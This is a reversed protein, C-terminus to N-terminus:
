EKRGFAEALEAELEARSQLLDYIADESLVGRKLEKPFEGRSDADHDAMWRGSEMYEALVRAGPAAALYSEFAKRLNEEAAEEEEYFKEMLMLNQLAEDYVGDEVRVLEDQEYYLTMGIDRRGETMPKLFYKDGEWVPLSGVKDIPIWALDGEDCPKLEPKESLAASFLYMEESWNDSRFHVAGHFTLLDLAIGTEELVERRCCEEPTEGPLFKGGIGIWKGGNIDEKKKNRYLMLWENECTIYCVTSFQM